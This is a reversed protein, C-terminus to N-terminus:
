DEDKVQKLHLLAPKLLQEAWHTVDGALIENWEPWVRHIYANTGEGEFMYGGNFAEAMKAKAKDLTDDDDCWHGQKDQCAQLGALVTRPFYSLPQTLGQYYATMLAMLQNRAYEAKVPELLYHADVGVLHTEKSQAVLALCLHDIWGQLIDQARVKGPRYRVLGSQSHHKLWGQLRIPQEGILLAEDVEVDPLPKAMLSAVKDALKEIQVREGVLELEGFEALPLGGSAQQYEAFREFVADKSGKDRGVEGQLYSDLITALLDSRLQFRSLGDLVFPEDDEVAGAASEFFVKLRRNFFYQVPLRWFRSLEALELVPMGGGESPEADLPQEQFAEATIPERNAAPLWEAAYSPMVGQFAEPSFPVLPHIHLMMQALRDASQDVPLAEDGKLCYGQQCYELLESVLVSPMKESNDQISRGVYSIYLIEQASQIAELFLYRDDERRSRDGYKGRGAMLDFGEPPISRPYIGDNMGLLCVVKFPISRMPMLTCFNVQGALFRQSVREGSLKDNLYNRLVAPTIESQYGADSLQQELQQLKDRIMRLVMEGDTDVAFFDDLLQNLVSIWATVPQPQALLQRNHMLMEIFLGLQGALEADMGQVEDYALVGQYLGSEQPMAYGLLMRQLGFLWTNQQQRPLEFESATADDLGWRIGVEEIWSKIREFRECDFGFKAMVAPVELLELLESAQCRSEPLSLLRLFALLVPNEQDASRDSISFPIYRDGPANGFVAQIYPSYSNIDAVMVVIDRPSLEPNDALMALLNDHLVEVERMPSHCAHVTLSKDQASLALKHYSNETLEDNVRDELNLIDAQISHLLSDSEIDVFAEVDYAEMESLLYLNDRGLKGLSALLTNGVAGEHTDDVVNDEIEGKLPSIVGGLESHDACWQLQQRQKAALRALYKRDRVEGWYHRCPNTFMLHVDIHKGLAALADLYRPPLASIGFVFLRKPLGDPLPAGSQLYSELTEIFNDYLNARHYPSQGLTLTQDYLAQWLLPQWPHEATLEPDIQDAEWAQIWEPRYVLYQDFIDAIKEALQYSKVQQDDESLYRDLPEFEPKDLQQPLVQMLKWTMAEKNFASREPVDSLVKTFMKWIFTAPLPFELNAAVGLSRALELKLWQSMGPSQVLIQEQEFPNDLPDRRILEVLLSKLLELQNSHYVTFM